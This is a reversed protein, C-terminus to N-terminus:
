STTITRSSIRPCTLLPGCRSPRGALCGYSAPDCVTSITALARTAAPRTDCELTARGPAQNGHPPRHQRASPGPRRTGASRQPRGALRARRRVEGPPRSERRGGSRTYLDYTEERNRGLSITAAPVIRELGLRQWAPGFAAAIEAAGVVRVDGWREGPPGVPATEIGVLRPYRGAELPSFDASPLLVGSVDVPLLGDQVKVMLVPRRYVLDVKVRAPHYKRVQRVEAIWPHLKFANAIRDTLDDDTISLPRDLSADRFAEGRIDTHIWEPPPAIEVNQLKLWYEESSLVRTRVKSWTVAWAIGFAALIAAAMALNRYPSHFLDVLKGAGPIALYLPPRPPAKKSSM